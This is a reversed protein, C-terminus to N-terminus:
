IEIVEIETTIDVVEIETPLTGVQTGNNYEVGALVNGPIPYDRKTDGPWWNYPFWIAM